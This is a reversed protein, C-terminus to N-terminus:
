GEIAEILNKEALYDAYDEEPSGSIPEECEACAYGKHETQYHGQFGLHDETYDVIEIEDHTCFFSDGDLEWTCNPIDRVDIHVAGDPTRVLNLKTGYGVVRTKYKDRLEIQQKVM